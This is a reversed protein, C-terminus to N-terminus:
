TRELWGLDPTQALLLGHVPQGLLVLVGSLM